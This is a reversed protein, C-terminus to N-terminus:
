KGPNEPINVLHVVGREALDLIQKQNNGLEDHIERSIRAREEEPFEPKQSIARALSSPDLSPSSSLAAKAIDIAKIENETYDDGLEELNIKEM